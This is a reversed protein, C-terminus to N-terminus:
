NDYFILIYLIFALLGALSKRLIKLAKGMQNEVTKISIGLEDAIEKYKMGDIKCLRFIKQCQEPLQQIALEIKEQLEWQTLSSDSYQDATALKETQYNKKVEDHKKLNMCKNFVARFLYAKLSQEISIESRKEWFKVFVEQATGEALDRDKLINFAYGTLSSYYLRFLKEFASESGNAIEKRLSIEEVATTENM